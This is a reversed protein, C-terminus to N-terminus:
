AQHLAGIGLAFAAEHIVEGTTPHAFIIERLEEDTVGKEIAITLASILTSADAGILAAGIIKNTKKDKILKVFGETQDQTLAKGNNKYTAKSVQYDINNAKADEESYGVTAIEPSTFIVNPVAHYNMEIVNNLINNVAVIGQHSAVHALQIIDTVDGIAYVHEVNTKMKSDVLIGRNNKKLNISANEIALGEINPHRGVAVLVKESVILHEGKSDEYTVIAQKSNAQQINTVKASTYVNIGIKKAQRKLETSIETDVMAVLRDLFEVVSVEVGLKRYIFAFEMGIVGGGVITISSPLNTDALAQTSNLVFPQDVGPIPVRSISSGTAIICDKFTIITETDAEVKIQKENIFSASGKLVEIKNSSMLYDIGSVLQHVVEDKRAIVKEMDVRTKGEIVIGFTDAHNIYHNVDASKVLSKTPICGWNLCTGGLKDKEIITVNLGKKAAYIAAVYGGPGSGIIVLDKDLSQAQAAEQNEKPELPSTTSVEMEFLPTDSTVEAGEEILIESIVGDVEAKVSRNAKGLEVQLLEDDKKVSDNVQVQITGVKGAKGQPLDKITIIM